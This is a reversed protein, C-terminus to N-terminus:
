AAPPADLRAAIVANHARRAQLRGLQWVGLALMGFFILPIAALFLLRLWRPWAAPRM